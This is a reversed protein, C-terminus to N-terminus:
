SRGHLYGLIYGVIL